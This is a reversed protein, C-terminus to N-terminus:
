AMFQKSAIIVIMLNKTIPTILVENAVCKVVVDLPECCVGTSMPHDPGGVHICARSM